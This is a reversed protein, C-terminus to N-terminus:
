HGNLKLDQEQHYVVREEQDASPRREHHEVGDVETGRQHTDDARSLEPSPHEKRTETPSKENEHSEDLFEPSM